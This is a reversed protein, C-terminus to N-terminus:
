ALTSAFKKVVEAVGEEKSFYIDFAPIDEAISNCFDLVDPLLEREHWPITSVPLLQKFADSAAIAELRNEASQKLFLLARLPVTKNVAIGAEGPWPTGSMFYENDKKHLIIRDDSLLSFDNDRILQKSITSKGARSKGCFVIGIDNYVTCGASHVLLGDRGSAAYMFLLEDLPYNVIDKLVPTGNYDDICDKGVYVTASLRDPSIIARWMYADDGLGGWVLERGAGSEYVMWSITEGLLKGRESLGSYNDPIVSINFRIIDASEPPLICRFESHTNEVASLIRIPYQSDIAFHINGISLGTSTVIKM